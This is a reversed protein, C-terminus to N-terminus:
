KLFVGTKTLLGISLSDNRLTSHNRVRKFFNDLFEGGLVRERARSGGEGLVRERVSSGGGV